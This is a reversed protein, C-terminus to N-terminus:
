SAPAIAPVTSIGECRHCFPRVAHTRGDHGHAWSARIVSSNQGRVPRASNLAEPAVSLQGLMLLVLYHLAFVLLRICFCVRM